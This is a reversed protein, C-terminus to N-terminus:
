SGRLPGKRGLRVSIGEAYGKMLAWRYGPSCMTSYGSRGGEGSNEVLNSVRQRLMPCFSDDSNFKRREKM